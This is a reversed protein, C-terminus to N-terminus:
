SAHREEGRIAEIPWKGIRQEILKERRKWSIDEPAEFPSLPRELEKPIGM